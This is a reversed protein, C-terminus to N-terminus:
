AHATSSDSQLQPANLLAGNLHREAAHNFDVAYIVQEVDRYNIHWFASGLMHGACSPTVEIGEGKDPFKVTESYKLQRMQDFARDVDDLTFLPAGDTGSAGGRLIPGYTLQDYLFMQGM